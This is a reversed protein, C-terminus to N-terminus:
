RLLLFLLETDNDDICLDHGLFGAGLFKGLFIQGLVDSGLFMGWFVPGLFGAGISMGWFVHGFFEGGWFVAELFVEARHRLTSVNHKTPNM